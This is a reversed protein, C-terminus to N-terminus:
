GARLSYVKSRSPRHTADGPFSARITYVGQMSAKFKFSFTGAKLAVVKRLSAFGRPGRVTALVNGGVTPKVAGRV